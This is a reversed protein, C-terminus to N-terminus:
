PLLKNEDPMVGVGEKKTKLFVFATLKVVILFYKKVLIIFVNISKQYNWYKLLLIWIEACKPFNIQGESQNHFKCWLCNRSYRRLNKDLKFTYM